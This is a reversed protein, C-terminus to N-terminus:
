SHKEYIIGNTIEDIINENSFQPVWGLAKSGETSLIHDIKLMILQERAILLYGFLYSFMHIPMLPLHLIKTKKNLIRSIRFIWDNISLPDDAAANFYGTSKNKCVILVLNAVDQVHVMSVLNAGKGPVVAIGFKSIYNIFNVFLGGRERGGIICPIITASNNFLDVWKQALLKSFSYIGESSMKDSTHNTIGVRQKYMMSTGIHVFHVQLKSYKEYLFKVSIVNNKLFYSRRNFLPLDKSVYQVAACNIITSVNPLTEVFEKCSLDGLFDVNGSKDTTFFDINNNRFVQCINKGLFGNAGTILIGSNRTEQSM